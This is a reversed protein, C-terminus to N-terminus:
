DLHTCVYRFIFMFKNELCIDRSLLEVYNAELVYMKMYDADVSRSNLYLQNFEMETMDSFKTLGLRYTSNGVNHKRIQELNERLIGFRIGKEDGNYEKKHFAIWSEFMSADTSGFKALLAGVGDDEPVPDFSWTSTWEVHLSM